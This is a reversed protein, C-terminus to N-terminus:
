STASPSDWPFNRTPQNAFRKMKIALKTGAEQALRIQFVRHNVDLTKCALDGGGVQGGTLKFNDGGERAMGLSAVTERLFQM